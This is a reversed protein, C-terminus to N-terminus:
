WFTTPINWLLIILGIQSWLTDKLVVISCCLRNQGVVGQPECAAHHARGAVEADSATIQVSTLLAGDVNSPELVESDIYTVKIEYVTTKILM